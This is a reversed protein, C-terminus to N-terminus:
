AKPKYVDKTEFIEKLNETMGEKISDKESMESLQESEIGESEGVENWEDEGVENWVRSNENEGSSSM